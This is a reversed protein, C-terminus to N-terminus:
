NFENPYNKAPWVFEVKGSSLNWSRFDDIRNKYVDNFSEIMRKGSPSSSNPFKVTALLGIESVLVRQYEPMFTTVWWNDPPTADPYEPTPYIQGHKVTTITM